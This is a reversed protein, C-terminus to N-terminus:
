THLHITPYYLPIHLVKLDDEIDAVCFLGSLRKKKSSSSWKAKKKKKEDPELSLEMFEKSSVDVYLVCLTQTHIKHKDNSSQTESTIRQLTKWQAATSCGCTQKQQTM